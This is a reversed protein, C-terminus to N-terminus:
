RGTVREMKLLELANCSLVRERKQKPLNEEIEKLLRRQDLLPYDSGFLVKDTGVVGTVQDYIMPSYLFPSAATDFYVNSIAKKVEPMMAYFPLGGGWHACVLLLEPFRTIFRYLVDPTVNGKGTYQHGVPESAHTLLILNNKVLTDVIHDIPEGQLDFYGSDPRIEGIGRIGGKACREIEAVSDEPSGLKISCFGVFRRPYRSVAEMIYDNSEVCLEHSHWGINLVVSVDIAAEDMSALLKEATVLRARPDSYLMAFAPDLRIYKDRDEKVRPSFIHTHFDIIV